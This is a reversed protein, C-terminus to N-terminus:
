VIKSISKEYIALELVFMKTRKLYKIVYNANLYKDTIKSFNYLGLGGNKKMSSGRKMLKSLSTSSMDAPNEIKFYFRENTQNITVSVPVEKRTKDCHEIANNLAISLLRLVDIYDAKINNIINLVQIDYSVGSQNAKEMFHYFLGRVAPDSIRKLPNHRADDIAELSYDKLHTLLKISNEQSDNKLSYELASIYNLYDHRFDDLKEYYDKTEQNDKLYLEIVQFKKKYIIFVIFFATYFISYLLTIISTLIYDLSYFSIGLHFIYILVYIVVSLVTLGKLKKTYGSFYDFIDYKQDAKRIISFLCAALALEVSLNLYSTYFGLYRPIDIALFFSIGIVNLLFNQLLVSLFINEVLLYLFWCTVVYAIAFFFSTYPVFFMNAMMLGLYFLIFRWKSAGKFLMSMWIFLNLYAVLVFMISEM